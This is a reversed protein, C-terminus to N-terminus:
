GKAALRARLAARVVDTSPRVGRWVAFAEAAQEVLMGLGDAARDAGASLAHTMFVTPQAGYMMDYALAGAAYTGAPLPPVDGQLSGATANIVVDFSGPVADWGGGALSVAQRKAADTFRGVLEDARSATRNAIFLAAPKAEILPLMAGRSAGGAGLLLVRRGALSVGLPGEIDRVLGVGDTNDGTIGDADFVLTNVAGAAQARETLRDALAHAELKFPVTVNAGRAGHEIFTRVTAAFADLPALLREYTLRQATERAFEAHIFPSQSHEVPHGIVAYRDAPLDGAPMQNTM